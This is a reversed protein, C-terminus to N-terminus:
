GSYRLLQASVEPRGQGSEASEPAAPSGISFGHAPVNRRCQFEGIKALGAAPTPENLATSAGEIAQLLPDSPYELGEPSARAGPSVSRGDL